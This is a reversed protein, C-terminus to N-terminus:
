WGLLQWLGFSHEALVLGLGLGAAELSVCNLVLRSLLVRVAGTSRLVVPHGSEWHGQCGSSPRSQSACLVTDRLVLGAEHLPKGLRQVYKM